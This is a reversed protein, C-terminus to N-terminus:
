GWQSGRQSSHYWPLLARETVFVLGFLMLSLLSSIVIAAFVQDTKFANASRLMFIGLGQSAGVWEGIIAGVVSYTAAIRLGSFFYPLSAPLRVKRWIQRRTAGMAQLLALLEPDAATLGDATNIAIPFFCFLTVIFVKPTLGFGFWIILLPALALIPITQSAVLLPYLARRLWSSLDLMAALAVGTVIALGLGLLVQKMTQLVHPTLLDINQWMARGIQSPAPLIWRPVERWTVLGEWAVLLGIMLVIPPGYSRWYRQAASGRM